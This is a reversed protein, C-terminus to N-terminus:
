HCAGNDQFEGSAAMEGLAHACKVIKQNLPDNEVSDVTIYSANKRADVVKNSLEQMHSLEKNLLQLADRDSATTAAVSALRLSKAARAQYPDLVVPLDATGYGNRVAVLLASRWERIDSMTEIGSNLFDRSLQRTPAHNASGSAGHSLTLTVDNGRYNVSGNLLRALADIAVYARGNVHTVPAQGSHGSVVLTGDQQEALALGLGVVTVLVILPLWESRAIGRM